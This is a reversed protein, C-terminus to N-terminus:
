GLTVRINVRRDKTKNVTAASVHVDQKKLTELWRLWPDFFVGDFWVRVQNNEAPQMRSINGRLGAQTATKEIITLLPLKPSDSNQRRQNLIPQFARIQTQMWALDEHQAPVQARLMSLRQYRPELVQIYLVIGVSVFIGLSLLTRERQSLSSWYGGM